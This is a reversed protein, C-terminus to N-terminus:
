NGVKTFTYQNNYFISIVENTKDRRSFIAKDGNKIDIFSNKEVPLFVNKKGDNPDYLILNNNEDISVKLFYNGMEKFQYKGVFQELEDKSLTIPKITRTKLLDLNYQKSFSSVIEDTLTRGQDANTMVIIGLERDFFNIMVSNFGPNSGGHFFYKLEDEGRLGVGLGWSNNPKLMEKAMTQSLYSDNVNKYSNQIAISFKALDTPTTWLGAPALEPFIHWGGKFAKGDKDYAFSVNKEPFQDFTSDVMKLPMLIEEKMFKAFTKKSVDEVLKQLIVYGGGSYSFKTGPVADVVIKPSNGKGDLVGSTDPINDTKEYGQFGSVTIGATHNLLRRMTVKEDKTFENNPIKWSKLYSNIDRDIDLKSKEALKLVAFATVSKSISAAQFMTNNSVEVKNQTDAFGYTKSWLIKGDKFVAVSVGPVNYFKMREEISYVKEKESELIISPTLGNEIASIEKQIIEKKVQSTAQYSFCVLFLILPLLKKM